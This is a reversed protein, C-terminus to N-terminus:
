VYCLMDCRKNWLSFCSACVDGYTCGIVCVDHMMHLKSWVNFYIVCLCWWLYLVDSVYWLTDSFRDCVNFGQVCVYWLCFLQKVSWVVKCCLWQYLLAHLLLFNAERYNSSSVIEEWLPTLLLPMLEHTCVPLCVCVCVCVCMCVCVCVWVCVCEGVCAHVCVWVCVCVCVCVCMHFDAKSSPISTHAHFVIPLSTRIWLM